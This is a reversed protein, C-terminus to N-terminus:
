LLFGYARLQAIAEERSGAERYIQEPMKRGLAKRGSASSMGRHANVVRNLDAGDKVAQIDAQSMGTIRGERFLQMPDQRPYDTGYVPVNVCQCYPHRQFAASYRYFSGLLVACRSCCAGGAERVYGRIVTTATIGVGDAVRGADIVQTAFIRDLASGGLALGQGVSAGDKMAMLTQILPSQLLSALDRGDSAM